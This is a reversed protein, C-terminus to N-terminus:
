DTDRFQNFGFAHTAEFIDLEKAISHLCCSKEFRRKCVLTSQGNQFEIAFSKIFTQLGFDMKNLVFVNKVVEKIKLHVGTNEFM